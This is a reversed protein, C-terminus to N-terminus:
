GNARRGDTEGNTNDLFSPLFMWKILLSMAFISNKEIFFRHIAFFIGYDIFFSVKVSKTFYYAYTSISWKIVNRRKEHGM